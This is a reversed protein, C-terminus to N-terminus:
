RGDIGSRRGLLPLARLVLTVGVGLGFGALHTWWAVAGTIPGFVTYLLQLAFWSGIVVVAPVRAFQLYLGLPLYLGIRRGPFLGLYVGVIVSIAGSAGIIPVPSDALRLAVLAHTVAGGLLFVALIAVHGLRQEIKLGFVWLYVLNGVLHLGSDHIFLATFLTSAPGAWGEAFPNKLMDSVASPQMGLVDIAGQQLLPPLSSYVVYALICLLAIAPTAFPARSRRETWRTVVGYEM